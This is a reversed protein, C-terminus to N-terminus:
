AIREKRLRHAMFNKITNRILDKADIEDGEERYYEQQLYKYHKKDIVFQERIQSPTLKTACIPTINFIKAVGDIINKIYLSFSNDQILMIPKLSVIAQSLGQSFHGIVMESHQILQNTKYYIIERDGFINEDPYIYKGSASIVIKVGLEEEIIDFMGCINKEFLKIEVHNNKEGAMNTDPSFHFNNEVYVCYKESLLTQTQNWLIDASPISIYNSKRSIDAYM